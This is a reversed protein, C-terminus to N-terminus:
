LKITIQHDYIRYLREEDVIFEYESDPKFCVKDGSKIGKSMLYENPYVMIGMLPEEEIPKYIFSEEPKIPKVFCYRDHAQWETGNHFMFFQEDDIFFLDEKFFSKGSKRRGKMDNYFKFVNHHVLLKDGVKIPGKYGIPLEVVDAERNSFRFDEESTNIILDIGGIDKTNNYRKGEMPKVIFYFPSQM